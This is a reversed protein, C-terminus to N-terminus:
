KHTLPYRAVKILVCSIYICLIILIHVFLNLGLSVIFLSFLNISISPCLEAIIIATILPCLIVMIGYFISVLIQKCLKSRYFYPNNIFWNFGYIFNIIWFANLYDDPKEYQCCLYDPLDLKEYILTAREEYDASIQENSKTMKNKLIYM